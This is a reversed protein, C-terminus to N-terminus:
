IKKLALDLCEEWGPFPQESALWQILEPLLESMFLDFEPGRWHTDRFVGIMRGDNEPFCYISRTRGDAYSCFVIPRDM